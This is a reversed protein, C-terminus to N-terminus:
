WSSGDHRVTRGTYRRGQAGTLITPLLAGVAALMWWVAIFAFWLVLVSLSAVCCWAAGGM